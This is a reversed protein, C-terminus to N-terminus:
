PLVFIIRNLRIVAIAKTCRYETDVDVLGVGNPDHTAPISIQHESFGNNSDPIRLSHYPCM